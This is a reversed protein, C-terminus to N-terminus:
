ADISVDGLQFLGSPGRYFCAYIRHCDQWNGTADPPFNQFTVSIEDGNNDCPSASFLFPFREKPFAWESVFGTGRHVIRVRHADRDGQPIDFNTSLGWGPIYWFALTENLFVESDWRRRKRAHEFQRWSVGWKTPADPDAGLRVLVAAAVKMRYGRSEYKRYESAYWLLNRGLADVCSAVIGPHKRESEEALDALEPLPWNACAHFLLRRSALWRNTDTDNEMLWDLTRMKRERLLSCLLRLDMRRGVVALTMMLRAPTESCMADLVVPDFDKKDERWDYCASLQINSYFVPSSCRITEYDPMKRKCYWRRGEESDLLCFPIDGKCDALVADRFCQVRNYRWLLEASTDSTIRRDDFAAALVKRITKPSVASDFTARELEFLGKNPNSALLEPIDDPPVPDGMDPCEVVRVGWRAEPTMAVNENAAM